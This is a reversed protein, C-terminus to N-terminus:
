RKPIGSRPLSQTGCFSFGTIDPRLASSCCQRLSSIDEPTWVSIIASLRRYHEAEEETLGLTRLKLIQEGAIKGIAAEHILEADVHHADLTPSANVTGQEALIADCESHGTCRVKGVIRSTFEQHSNGRAVSRSVLDAGSDDCELVVSFATKAKENGDTMIRERVIIKASAGLVARTTRTTDDVGGLQITDMTLVAGEALTADTIPDIRKIGKGAGTGIHKEM